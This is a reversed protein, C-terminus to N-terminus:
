FWNYQFINLINIASIGIICTAVVGMIYSKPKKDKAIPMMFTLLPIFPYMYRGQVGDIILEGVDNQRTFIFYIMSMIMISISFFMINEKKSTIYREDSYLGSFFLVFLYPIFTFGSTPWTIATYLYSQTDRILTIITFKIIEFPNQLAYIINGGASGLANTIAKNNGILYIGTIKFTIFAIIVIFAVLLIRNFFDNCFSSKTSIRVIKKGKVLLFIGFCLIYPLKIGAIFVAIVIFWLYLKKSIEDQKKDKVYIYLGFVLLLLSYLFGDTSCTSRLFFIGPAFYLVLILLKNKPAIKIAAYGLITSIVLNGLRAMYYVIIPSLKFLNALVIFLAQPLYALPSIEGSGVMVGRAEQGSYNKSFCEIWKPWFVNYNTEGWWFSSSSEGLEKIDYFEVPLSSMPISEASFQEDVDWFESRLNGQSIDYARIFHRWEDPASCPIAGIIQIFGLSLSMVIFIKYLDKTFVLTILMIFIVFNFIILLIRIAQQYKFLYTQRNSIVGDSTAKVITDGEIHNSVLLYYMKSQEIKQLSTDITIGGSQIIGNVDTTGSFLIDGKEADQISFNMNGSIGTTSIGFFINQMDKSQTKFIFRNQSGNKLINDSTQESIEYSTTPKNNARDIVLTSFLIVIVQIFICLLIRLYASKHEIVIKWKNNTDRKENALKM